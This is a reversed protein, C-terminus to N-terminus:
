DQLEPYLIKACKPCLSHTFQAKSHNSIYSEIQRWYGGDDRIDKCNCCIPLMGSLEKVEDLAKQLEINAKQLEINKERLSKQLSDLTIHTHVRALVEEEQFPKLIYDVGGESFAKVKHTPENLSSCFIIPILRTQEDAKLRRCVEFGDMDPMVIDLLILDPPIAKAGSLALRGNPVPRVNYGDDMLLRNLIKLNVPTDDVVLINGKTLSNETTM